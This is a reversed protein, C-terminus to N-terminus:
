AFLFIFPLIPIFRNYLCFIEIGKSKNIFIYNPLIKTVPRGGFTEYPYNLPVYINITQECLDFINNDNYAMFDYIYIYEIKSSQFFYQGITCGLPFRFSTISTDILVYGSLYVNRFGEEFHIEKLKTCHMFTDSNFYTITNPIFARIINPASHFCRYSFGYVRKNQFTRPVVCDTSALNKLGNTIDESERGIIFGDKHSSYYFDDDSLM